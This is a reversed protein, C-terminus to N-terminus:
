AVIRKKRVLMEYAKDLAKQYDEITRLRREDKFFPHAPDWNKFARTYFMGIFVTIDKNRLEITGNKLKQPTSKDTFFKTMKVYAPTVKIKEYTKNMDIPKNIKKIVDYIKANRWKEGYEPDCVLKGGINVDLLDDINKLPNISCVLDGRVVKPCGRMDTLQNHDCFFSGDVISIKLDELSTLNCDRLNLEGHIEWTGDPLRTKKVDALIKEVYQVRREIVEEPTAKSFIDSFKLEEYIKTFRM